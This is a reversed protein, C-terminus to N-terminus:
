AKSGDGGKNFAQLLPGFLDLPLPFFTTTSRESAIERMTQLYRLQVAIPHRTLVEAAESSSPRRRSSATPTSSRPGASASPRPRSPWPASCTRRCTSRSAGRRDGGQHGLARHARRHDAPAAPQDQRAGLLLDDLEVQGLVSRLRRRPSRRPRTSITRCRSRGGAGPRGGPLLDRREGQDSVNDRTIVDQPAVDLAVTQLSVKVMKDIIPVLIVLGPGNGARGPEPHGQRQPGPPLDGRARVRAPHARVLRHLLAGRLRCRGLLLSELRQDHASEEAKAAEGGGQADPRGRRRDAGARRARAARGRGVARWIEGSVIVQGEPASASASRDRARRGLGEAGTSRRGASRACARRSWSCSSGPPRAGVTPGIVWWSVRFGVEPADFLMLSGLAM